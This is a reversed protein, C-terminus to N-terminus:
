LTTEKGGRNVRARRVLRRLTLAAIGIADTEAASLTELDRVHAAISAADAEMRGLLERDAAVAGTPWRNVTPPAIETGSM